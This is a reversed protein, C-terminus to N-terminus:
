AGQGAMVRAVLRRAFKGSLKRDGTLLRHWVGAIILDAAIKIDFRPGIEGRSRGRKMPVRLLKARRGVLEERFTAAFEPDSQAEAFLGALIAAAPTDRYRKFLRALIVELDGACSGNDVLLDDAPVLERYVELFLYPKAKWWRYITQKGAGARAAIQEITANNYGREAVVEAAAKVIADHSTQSRRPSSTTATEGSDTM